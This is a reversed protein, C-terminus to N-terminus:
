PNNKFQTTLIQMVVHGIILQTDEAIQMDAVNSHISRDAIKKAIGGVFGVIDYTKFGMKKAIEIAEIINKSNGSGSLAILIDGKNALTKLQESFIKEYGADNALCTIVSPNAPLATVKIGIGGSDRIGYIFDNALHIANGASGGNGCIFLQKREYQCVRLDDALETVLQFSLANLGGTLKIIYEQLHNNM